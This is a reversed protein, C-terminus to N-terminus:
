LQTRRHYPLRISDPLVKVASRVKMRESIARKLMDAVDVLETDSKSDDAAELM